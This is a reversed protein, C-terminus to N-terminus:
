GCNSTVQVVVDVPNGGMDIGISAGQAVLVNGDLAATASGSRYDALTALDDGALDTLTLEFRAGTPQARDDVVMTVQVLTDGEIGSVAIRTDSPPLAGFEAGCRARGVVTIVGDVAFSLEDTPAGALDTELEAIWVRYDAFLEELLATSDSTVPPAVPEDSGCAALTGALLTLILLRRFM